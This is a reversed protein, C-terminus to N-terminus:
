KMTNINFGLGACIRFETLSRHMDTNHQGAVLRAQVFFHFFQEM